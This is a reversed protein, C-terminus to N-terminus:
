NSTKRLAQNNSNWDPKQHGRQSMAQGRAWLPGWDTDPVCHISLLYYQFLLHIHEKEPFCYGEILLVHSKWPWLGPRLNESCQLFPSPSPQQLVLFKQCVIRYNVISYILESACLCVCANYMWPYVYLCPNLSHIHAHGTYASCPYSLTITIRTIDEACCFALPQLEIWLCHELSLPIIERKSNKKGM